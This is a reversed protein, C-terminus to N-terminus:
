VCGLFVTNYTYVCTPTVIHLVGALTMSAAAVLLESVAFIQRTNSANDLTIILLAIM